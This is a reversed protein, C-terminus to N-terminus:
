KLQSALPSVWKEGALDWLSDSQFYPAVSPHTRDPFLGDQAAAPVNTKVTSFDNKVTLQLMGNGQAVWTLSRVQKLTAQPTIEWVTYSQMGDGGAHSLLLRNEFDFAFNLLSEFEVVPVFQSGKPDWLWAACTIGRASRELPVILDDNRDFNLDMFYLPRLTCSTNAPPTLTQSEKQNKGWTITISAIGQPGTVISYVFKEQLRCGFCGALILLSIVLPTLRKM